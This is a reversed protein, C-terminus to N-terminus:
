ECVCVTVKSGGSQSDSTDPLFASFETRLLTGAPIVGMVEGERGPDRSRSVQSGVVDSVSELVCVCMCVCVYM